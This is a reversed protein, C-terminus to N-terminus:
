PAPRAPKAPAALDRAASEEWARKISGDRQMKKLEATLPEVLAAHREHLYHYMPQTELAPLEVINEVGPVHAARMKTVTAQMSASTAVAVSIHRALLMRVLAEQSNAREKVTTGLKTELTRVGFRMGVRLKSAKLSEWDHFRAPTGKLVFPSFRVEGIPEAIRRLHPLDKEVSQVRGLEADAVGADADLLSRAIPKRTVTAQIGLRAYAAVMVREMPVSLADANDFTSISIQRTPPGAYVAAGLLLAVAGVMRTVPGSLVGLPSRPMAVAQHM